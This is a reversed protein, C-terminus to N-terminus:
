PCGPGKPITITRVNLDGPSFAFADTGAFQLDRATCSFGTGRTFSGDAAVRGFENQFTGVTYMVPSNPVLRSGTVTVGFDGGPNSTSPQTTVTLTGGLTPPSSELEAITAEAAALRQELAQLQSSLSAIVSNDVVGAPGTEGRDGKEGKPGEIGAIGQQNWDVPTENNGCMQDAGVVKIAGSSNNVCSHIVDTGPGGPHAGAITAVAFAGLAAAIVM